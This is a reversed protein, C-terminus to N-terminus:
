MTFSIGFPRARGQWFFGLFRLYANVCVHMLIYIKVCDRRTRVSVVPWFNM